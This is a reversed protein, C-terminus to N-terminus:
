FEPNHCLLNYESYCQKKGETYKGICGYPDDPKEHKGPRSKRYLIKPFTDHHGQIHGESLRLYEPPRYYSEQM